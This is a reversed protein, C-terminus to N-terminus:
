AQEKNTIAILGKLAEHAKGSDLSEAAMEGGMKLDDAHGGGFLAGSANLVVIDRYPSKAGTLVDLLARANDEPTGGILHKAQARPLGIDEPSITIESMKGEKLLVGDTTDTTTIEDLGDRGHVVLAHTTGLDHLAQAFPKLWKKDFVGVMIRKVMAPNSLPGLMNFITRYGLEARVPAVHRMASHHRPALMFCIRAEDLAQQVLEMDAELNVGLAMLVDAAGSKSSVARNGHKAVHIGAGALVLATATSINWTGVEDGGTGVVDMAKDHAKIKIARRHLVSAGAAIDDPTEGKMKLATIFAAMQGITANGQLIEDFCTELDHRALSDGEALRKLLPQLLNPM